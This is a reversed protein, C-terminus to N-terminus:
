RIFYLLTRWDSRASEFVLTLNKALFFFVQTLIVRPIGKEPADSFTVLDQFLKNLYPIIVQEKLGEVDLTDILEIKDVQEVINRIHPDETNTSEKQEKKM